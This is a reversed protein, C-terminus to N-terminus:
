PHLTFAVEYAPIEDREHQSVVQKIARDCAEEQAM